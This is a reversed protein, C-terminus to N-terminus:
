AARDQLVEATADRLVRAARHLRVLSEWADACKMSEIRASKLGAVCREVDSMARQQPETLNKSVAAGELSFSAINRLLVAINSDVRDNTQPIVSLAGRIVGRLRDLRFELEHEPTERDAPTALAQRGAPGTIDRSSEAFAETMIKLSQTALHALRQNSRVMARTWISGAVLIILGVALTQWENLWILIQGSATPIVKFVVFSAWDGIM